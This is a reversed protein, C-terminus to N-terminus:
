QLRRDGEPEIPPLQLFYGAQSVSELVKKVDVRALRRQEDIEIKLNGKITNATEEM